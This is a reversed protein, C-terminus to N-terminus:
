SIKSIRSILGRSWREACCIKLAIDSCCTCNWCVYYVAGGFRTTDTRSTAAQQSTNRWYSCCSSRSGCSEHWAALWQGELSLCNLLQSRRPCRRSFGRILLLSLPQPVMSSSLCHAAWHRKQWTSAIGDHAYLFYVLFIWSNLLATLFRIEMLDLM